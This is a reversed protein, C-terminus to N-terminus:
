IFCLVHDTQTPPKKASILLVSLRWHGVAPQLQAVVPPLPVAVPLLGQGTTVFCSHSLTLLLVVCTCFGFPISSFLARRDLAEAEEGQVLVIHLRDHWGRRNRTDVRRGM